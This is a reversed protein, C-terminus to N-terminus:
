LIHVGDHHRVAVDGTSTADLLRVAFAEAMRDKVQQATLWEVAQSEQSVRPEGALVSCRFVLALITRSLNKYVGTLREPLVELGTEEAVERVLGDLVTEDAELVGGPPEWAGNDRRRVALFRGTGDLVAGAVSVSYCPTTTM